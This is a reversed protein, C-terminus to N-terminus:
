AQGAVLRPGSPYKELAALADDIAARKARLEQDLVALFWHPANRRGSCWDKLADAKANGGLLALSGVCVGPYPKRGRSNGAISWPFLVDLAARITAANNQPSPAMHDSQARERLKTNNRLLNYSSKAGVRWRLM